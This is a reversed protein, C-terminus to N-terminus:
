ADYPDVAEYYTDRYEVTVPAGKTKVFEVLDKQFEHWETSM